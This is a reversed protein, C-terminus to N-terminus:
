KDLSLIVDSTFPPTTLTNWGYSIRLATLINGNEPNIFRAEGNIPSFLSIRTSIAQTPNAYHFFYALLRSTSAMAYYRIRPTAIVIKIPWRDPSFGNITRQFVHVYTREDPGLYINANKSSIYKKTSSTNWFILSADHFFSTWMRIRMRIGSTKNWNAYKNGEEGFVIPKGWGWYQNIKNVMTIDSESVSDAHYWHPSIIDIEEKEPMEWNISIPHHYPDVSRLIDTVYTIWTDSAEAENGLEWVDVYAGYRAVVYRLYAEISTQRYIIDPNETSATPAFGWIAMWVHFGNARLERIFEDGWLGNNIPYTDWRASKDSLYSYLTKWLPFSSNDVSWRFMNFGAGYMGYTKMYQSIPINTKEDVSFDDLPYGNGNWDILSDGIGIPYFPLGNDLVFRRPNTQSIRIFGPNASEESTFTGTFTKESSPAPRVSISWQWEGIENPAFRINWADHNYYFGDVSITKQSPSRFVASVSAENWPNEYISDNHSVSFEIPKYLGGKKPTSTMTARSVDVFPKGSHKNLAYVYWGSTFYVANGSISPAADIPQNVVYAWKTKGSKIDIAYLTSDSSGFYLTDGDIAGGSHSATGVDNKWLVNGSALSLALLENDLTNIIVTDGTIAPTADISHEFRAKWLLQKDPLRFAYVNSDESAVVLTHGSLAPSSLIAGETQYEWVKTGTTASVGYMKGNFSGFYVVGNDVLPSSEIYTGKQGPWAARLTVDEPIEDAQFSWLKKGTKRDLSYLRGDRAGFIVANNYILPHTTISKQQESAFKWKVKGTTADVAYLHGDASGVYATNKYIIPSFPLDGDATFKWLLVGTRRNLAYLTYDEWSSIYVKNDIVVPACTLLGDTKYRWWRPSTSFRSSLYVGTREANARYGITQSPLQRILVITIFLNLAAFGLLAWGSQKITIHPRRIMYRLLFTIDQIYRPFLRKPELIIRWLWEFGIHQLWQPSRPKIGSLIDFASGVAVFVRARTRKAYRLIWEEQKLPGVGVLVIKAKTKNIDRVLSNHTKTGWEKAYPPYFTGVIKTHGPDYLRVITDVIKKSPGIIYVHNFDSIIKETLDTGSVRHTLAKQTFRSLWLLPVGDPFVIDAQNHKQLVSRNKLLEVLIHINMPFVFTQKNKSMNRRIVLIVRALTTRHVIIGLISTLAM